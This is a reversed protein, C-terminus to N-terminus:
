LAINAIGARLCFLLSGVAPTNWEYTSIVVRHLGAHKFAWELAWLIIEGGYRKNQYEPALGIGITTSRHYSLKRGELPFLCIFGIAPKAAPDRSGAPAPLCPIVKLLAKSDLFDKIDAISTPAPLHHGMNTATYPDRMVSLLFAEDSQEMNRYVLRDSGWVSNPM